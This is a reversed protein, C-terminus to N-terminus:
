HFNQKYHITYDAKLLELNQLSRKAHADNKEKLQSELNSIAQQLSDEYSMKEVNFDRLQSRKAYRKEYHSLAKREHFFVGTSENPNHLDGQKPHKIVQEVQVLVDDGTDEKISVGYSGTKHSFRYLM